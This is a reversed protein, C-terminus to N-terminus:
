AELARRCANRLMERAYDTDQDLDDLSIVQSSVAAQFEPAEM